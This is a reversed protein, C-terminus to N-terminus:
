CSLAPARGAVDDDATASGGATGSGRGMVHLTFLTSLIRYSIPSYRGEGDRAVRMDAGRDQTTGRGPRRRLPGHGRPLCTGDMKAEEAFDTPGPCVSNM